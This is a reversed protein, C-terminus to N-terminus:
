YLTEIYKGYKNLCSSAHIFHGPDSSAPSPKHERCSQGQLHFVSPRLSFKFSSVQSKKNNDHDIKLVTFRCSLNTNPSKKFTALEQGTRNIKDM